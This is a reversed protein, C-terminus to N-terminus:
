RLKNEKWYSDFGINMFFVECTSKSQSLPQLSSSFLGNLKLCVKKGAPLLVAHAVLPRGVNNIVQYRHEITVIEVGRVLRSSICWQMGRIEGSGLVFALPVSFGDDEGNAAAQPKGRTVAPLLM